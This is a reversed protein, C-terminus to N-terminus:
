QSEYEISSDPTTRESRRCLSLWRQALLRTPLSIQQSVRTSVISSNSEGDSSEDDDDDDSIGLRMAPMQTAEPTPAEGNRPSSVEFHIRPPPQPLEPFLHLDATEEDQEVDDSETPWHQAEADTSAINTESPLPANISQDSDTHEGDSSEDNDDDDSIGLRMAPMQTVEPTPTEGCKPSPVDFFIDPPPEPMEPFLTPVTEEAQRDQHLEDGDYDASSAEAPNDPPSPRDVISLQNSTWDGDNTGPLENSNAPPGSIAQDQGVNSAAPPKDTQDDWGTKVPPAPSVAGFKQVVAPQLDVLKDVRKAKWIGFMNCAALMGLHVGVCIAGTMMALVVLSPDGFCNYDKRVQIEIGFICMLMGISLSISMFYYQSSFCMCDLQRLIFELNYNPEDVTRWRHRRHKFRERCYRLYEYLKWGYFLEQTNTLMISVIEQSFLIVISFALYYVFGNTKIGYLDGIETESSFYYFFVILLPCFCLLINEMTLTRIADMLNYVMILDNEPQPVEIANPNYHPTNKALWRKFRARYEPMRVVTRYLLPDFYVRVLTNFGTKLFYSIVFNQFGGSGLTIIYEMMWFVLLFPVSMLSDGLFREVIRKYLLQFLKVLLLWFFFLTSFYRTYSFELVFTLFCIMLFCILVIYTRKWFRPHWEAKKDPELGDYRAGNPLFLNVSKQVVYAGVFLLGFGFRSARNTLRRVVNEMPDIGSDFESDTGDFLELNYIALYVLAAATLIPVGAFLGGQILPPLLLWLYGLLALASLKKVRTLLRHLSWIASTIVITISAMGLYVAIYLVIEFSFMNFIESWSAPTLHVELTYRGESIAPSAYEDFLVEIVMIQRVSSTIQYYLFNVVVKTPVQNSAGPTGIKVTVPVLLEKPLLLFFEDGRVFDDSKVPIQTLYFLIDGEQAEFWRTRSERINLQEEIVCSLTLNCTDAYPSVFPVWPNLPVTEVLPVLDCIANEFMSFLPVTSDFGRCNSFFPFWSMHLVPSGRHLWFISEERKVSPDTYSDRVTPMGSNPIFSLVAPMDEPPLNFPLAIPSDEYIIAHFIERPQGTRAPIKTKVSMTGSFLKLQDSKKGDVIEVLITFYIDQVPMINLAFTSNKEIEESLFWVPLDVAQPYVLETEDDVSRLSRADIDSPEQPFLDTINQTTMYISLRFETEFEIGVRSWDFTIQGVSLAPLFYVNSSGFKVITVPDPFNSLGSFVPDGLDILTNNKGGGTESTDNDFASSPDRGIVYGGHAALYAEDKICDEISVARIISTTGIPCTNSENFIGGHGEACFYGSPCPILTM